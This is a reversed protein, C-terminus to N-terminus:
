AAFGTFGVGKYFVSARSEWGGILWHKLNNRSGPGSM